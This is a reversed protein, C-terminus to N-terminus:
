LSPAMDLAMMSAQMHDGVGISKEMSETYQLVRLRGQANLIIWTTGLFVSMMCATRYLAKTPVSLASNLSRNLTALGAAICASTLGVSAFCLGFFVAIELGGPHHAGVQGVFALGAICSPCSLGQLVGAIFKKVDGFYSQLVQMRTLPAPALPANEETCETGTRSATAKGSRTCPPCSASTSSSSSTTPCGSCRCAEATPVWTGDEAQELYQSEKSLFFLGIGLLSAGALYNGYVEWLKRNILSQLPLFIACFTLAGVSHGLGWKFGGKFAHWVNKEAANLVILSCLHDPEFPIIAGMLWGLVPTSHIAVHLYDSEQHSIYELSDQAKRDNENIHTPIHELSNQGKGHNEDRHTRIHKEHGHNL